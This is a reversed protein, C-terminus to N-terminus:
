RPEGGGCHGAMRLFPRVAMIHAAILSWGAITSLSTPARASAFVLSFLL